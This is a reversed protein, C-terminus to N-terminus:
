ASSNVGSSVESHLPFEVSCSLESGLPDACARQFHLAAAAPRVGGSDQGASRISASHRWTRLLCTTRSQRSATPTTAKTGMTPRCLATVPTHFSFKAQSLLATKYAESAGREETQTTGPWGVHIQGIHKPNRTLARQTSRWVARGRCLEYTMAICRPTFPWCRLRAAHRPERM